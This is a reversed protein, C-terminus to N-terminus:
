TGTAMVPAADAPPAKAAALAAQAAEEQKREAKALAIAKKEAEARAKKEAAADLAAQRRGAEADVRGMRATQTVSGDPSMPPPEISIREGRARKRTWDSVLNAEKLGAISAKVPPSDSKRSAQAFA